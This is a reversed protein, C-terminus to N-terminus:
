LKRCEWANNDKKKLVYVAVYRILDTPHFSYRLCGERYTISLMMDRDSAYYSYTKDFKKKLAAKNEDLLVSDEFDKLRDVLTDFDVPKTIRYLSMRLKLDYKVNKNNEAYYGKDVSIVVYKGKAAEGEAFTDKGVEECLLIDGNSVGEPHMSSGDTLFMRDKYDATRITEDGVRIEDPLSLQPDINYVGHAPDGAAVVFRPAYEYENVWSRDTFLWSYINRALNKM